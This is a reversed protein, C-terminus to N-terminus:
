QSKRERRCKARASKTSAHACDAHASKKAPAESPTIVLHTSTEIIEDADEFPQSFITVRPLEETQCAHGSIDCGIWKGIRHVSAVKQPKSGWTCIGTEIMEDIDARNCEILQVANRVEPTGDTYRQGTYTMVTYFVHFTETINQSLRKVYPRERTDGDRPAEHSTM